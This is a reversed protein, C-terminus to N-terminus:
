EDNADSITNQMQWWINAFWLKSIYPPLVIPEFNVRLSVTPKCCSSIPEVRARHGKQRSKKEEQTQTAQGLTRMGGGGLGFCVHPWNPVGVFQRCSPTHFILHNNANQHAQRGKGESPLSLNWWLGSHLVCQTNSIPPHSKTAINQQRWTNNGEWHRWSFYDVNKELVTTRFKQRPSKIWCLEAWTTSEM